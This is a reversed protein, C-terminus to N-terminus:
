CGPLQWGRAGTAVCRLSGVTEAAALFSERQSQEPADAFGRYGNQMLLTRAIDDPNFFKVRTLLEGLPHAQVLTTKGAGNPGAIIWLEPRPM